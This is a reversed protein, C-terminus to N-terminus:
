IMTIIVIIIIIFLHGGSGDKNIVLHRYKCLPLSSPTLFGRQCNRLSLCPTMRVQGPDVAAQNIGANQDRLGLPGM